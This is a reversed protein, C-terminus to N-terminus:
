KLDNSHILIDHGRSLLVHSCILLDHGRSLFFVACTREPIGYKLAITLFSKKKIDIVQVM